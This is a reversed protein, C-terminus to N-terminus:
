QNIAGGERLYNNGHDCGMLSDLVQLQVSLDMAPTLNVSGLPSATDDHRIKCHNHYTVDHIIGDFACVGECRVTVRRLSNPTVNHPM